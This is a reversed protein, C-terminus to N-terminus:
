IGPRCLKYNLSRILISPDAASASFYGGGQEDWFLDDMTNQLQDAWQLWQLSGTCEYLDLLGQIMYAYDDAFGEVSSPGKCFSRLLKKNGDRSLHDRVACAVSVAVDMYNEAEYGEIPFSRQIQPKEHKLARSALAFASIAMGNWASVVKDDLHPRPRKSRVKHLAERCQALYADAQEPTLSFDAATEAVSQFQYPVNKNIFEKHPDSRPSMTCNGSDKIYYHENFLRVLDVDGSTEIESLIAEIEKAEWVYFAGESKVNKEVDLSDADEASYIGGM